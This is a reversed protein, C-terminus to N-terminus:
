LILHSVDDHESLQSRGIATHFKVQDYFLLYILFFLFIIIIIIWTWSKPLGWGSRDSILM